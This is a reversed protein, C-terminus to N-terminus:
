SPSGATAPRGARHHRAAVRQPQGTPKAHGQRPQRRFAAVRLRSLDAELLAEESEFEAHGEGHAIAIPLRLPRGGAPLDVVVRCRVMAVRAEFQESRNRVFHPWFETGPILEHLNSMMQCGNCVGLAFSDQARLVGPLRRPRPRQLPDVQGLRAPASCTATPSAVAPWWARSPTWPQGARRPHRRMHVDIAAFGARDFAAAMEVQGNVGQERLIAM